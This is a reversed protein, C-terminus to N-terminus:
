LPLNNDLVHTEPVQTLIVPPQCSTVVLFRGSTRAAIIQHDSSQTDVDHQCPHQASQATVGVLVSGIVHHRLVSHQRRSAGVGCQSVAPDYRSFAVFVWLSNRSNM